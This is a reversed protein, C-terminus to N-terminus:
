AENAGKGAIIKDRFKAIRALQTGAKAAGRLAIVYSNQRGRTLAAFAEALVPDDDLAAVLVDPLDLTTTQKPAKIGQAAHAMAQDLFGAIVPAMERPADDDTFRIMDPQATNPGARQLIADPDTLLAADFFSIRFDGAFAGIIAINRGAVMYCPHGWKVTEQLRAGLCIGRLQALGAAWKRAACSDTEFKACRGCGKAFYDDGQTIMM